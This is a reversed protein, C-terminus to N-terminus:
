GLHSFQQLRKEDKTAIYYDGGEHKWSVFDEFYQKQVVAFLNSPDNLNRSKIKSDALPKLSVIKCKDKVDLFLQILTANLSQSFVENNVLIVDARKIADHIAVNRTFDDRELRVKGPKIGWLRCRASFEKEQADALDCANPMMECGWSECGVELATQLVVNGVGSGLDVFVQDSKLQTEEIIMTVFHALLEGYTNDKNDKTKKLIDVKPSVARDYVQRLILRVMEFPLNHMKDLNKSLNDSSRLMELANNYNDVATKFGDLLEKDKNNRSLLNMARELKRIFGTNPDTFPLAEEEAMYVNAVTKAIYYIEQAPNIQERGFVLDYRTSTLMNVFIKYTVM